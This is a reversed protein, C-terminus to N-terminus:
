QAGGKLDLALRLIRMVEDGAVNRRPGGSSNVLGRAVLERYAYRPGPFISYMIGGKLGLSRMVMSCLEDLRVAADGTRNKGVWAKELLLAFAAEPNSDEGVLGGASLVIYATSDLRAREQALLEDVADNSQAFAPLGCFLMVLVTIQLTRL